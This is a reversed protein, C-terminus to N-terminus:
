SFRSVRALRAMPRALRTAGTSPGFSKLGNVGPRPRYPRATTTPARPAAAAVVTASATVLRIAASSRAGSGPAPDPTPACGATARTARRTEASPPTVATTAPPTAMVVVHAVRVVGSRRHRRRITGSRPDPASATAAAM